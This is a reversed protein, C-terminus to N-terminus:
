IDIHLVSAQNPVGPRTRAGAHRLAQATDANITIGLGSLYAVPDDQLRDREAADTRLRRSALRLQDLGTPADQTALM